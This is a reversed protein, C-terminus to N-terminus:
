TSKLIDPFSELLLYRAIFKTIPLWKEVEEIDPGVDISIIPEGSDVVAHAIKNRLKHLHEGKDILHRIRKSVVESIFVV